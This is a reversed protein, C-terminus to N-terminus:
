RSVHKWGKGSAIHWIMSRSIGFRRALEGANSNPVYERCITRVDEETIKAHWHDEGRAVSEPATVSRHRNGIAHRNKLHMDKMNDVHTGLFLHNPRVCLPNDCSHCVFRDVPCIGYHIKYSVRNARFWRRGLSFRGYGGPALNKGTWNWCGDSKQVRGWFRDLDSQTPNPVQIPTKKAM